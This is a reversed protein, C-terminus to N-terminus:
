TTVKNSNESNKVEKTLNKGRHSHIATVPESFPGELISTAPVPLQYFPDGVMM